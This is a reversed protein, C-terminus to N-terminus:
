EWKFLRSALFIAFISVLLPYTGGMIINFNTWLNITTGDPRTSMDSGWGHYMYIILYRQPWIESVTKLGKSSDIQAIPIYQGSLFASPLFIMLGFLSNTNIDNTLSALLVGLSVAFLITLLGSIIVFGPRINATDIKGIINGPAGLMFALAIIWCGQVIMMSIYFSLAGTLFEWRKLPTAGIRRIITSQKWQTLRASLGNLGNGTIAAVIIGSFVENLPVNGNSQVTFVAGIILLLLLPFFLVFFPAGYNLLFSRGTLNYVAYINKFMRKSKSRLTPTPGTTLRIPQQKM